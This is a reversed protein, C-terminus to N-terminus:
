SLWWLGFDIGLHHVSAQQEDSDLSIAIHLCVKMCFYDTSGFVRFTLPAFLVAKM